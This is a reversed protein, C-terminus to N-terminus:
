GGSGAAALAAAPKWPLIFDVSLYLDSISIWGSIFQPSLDDSFSLLLSVACVSLCVLFFLTERFDWLLSHSVSFSVEKLHM